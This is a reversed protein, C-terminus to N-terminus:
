LSLQATEDVEVSESGLLAAIPAFKRRHHVCPGLRELAAFHEPV